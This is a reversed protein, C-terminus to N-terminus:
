LDRDFTGARECHQCRSVVLQSGSASHNPPQSAITLVVRVALTIECYADHSEQNVKATEM